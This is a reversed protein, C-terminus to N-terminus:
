AVMGRKKRTELVNGNGYGFRAENGHGNESGGIFEQM